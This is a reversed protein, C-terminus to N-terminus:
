KRPSANELWGTFRYHCRTSLLRHSNITTQLTKRSMQVSYVRLIRNTRYTQTSSFILKQFHQVDYHEVSKRERRHISELWKWSFFTSLSNRKCTIWSTSPCRTCNWYSIYTDSLHVPKCLVLFVGRFVGAMSLFNHCFPFSSIRADHSPFHCPM